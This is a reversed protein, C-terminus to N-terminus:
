RKPIGYWSPLEPLDLGYVHAVTYLRFVNRKDISGMELEALRGIPVIFRDDGLRKAVALSAAHVDRLTLGLSERMARLREGPTAQRKTM